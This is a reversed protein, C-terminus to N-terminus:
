GELNQQNPSHAPTKPAPVTPLVSVCKEVNAKMADVVSQLHVREDSIGLSELQRTLEEVKKTSPEEEIEDLEIPEDLVQLSTQVQCPGALEELRWDSIESCSQTIFYHTLNDRTDFFPEGRSSVWLPEGSRNYQLVEVDFPQGLRMKQRITEVSKPHTKQGHLVMQFTQGAVESLYHGMLRTFQPNTWKIHGEADTIIVAQSSFEAQRAARRIRRTNVQFRSILLVGLQLSCLACAIAAAFFAPSDSMRLMLAIFVLEAAALLAIRSPFYRARPIIPSELTM